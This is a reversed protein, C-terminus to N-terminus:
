DIYRTVGSRIVKAPNGSIVSNPETYKGNVVAGASITCGAAVSSGKLITSRCCIWVNDGITIPKEKKHLEGTEITYLHHWDEDMIMTEWSVLVNSGFTIHDNCIITMGATNVFNKGFTLVSNKGVSIRSSQGIRTTGEPIEITGDLQLMSRQYKKDFVGVGGFGMVLRTKGGGFNKFTVEGRLSLIKTNYRILVPFKIAEKFPFLRLCVWLSKPISLIKDFKM